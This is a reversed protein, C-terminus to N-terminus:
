LSDAIYHLANVVGIGGIIDHANGSYQSNVLDIKKSHRKDLVSDDFILLHADKPNIHKKTEHWIESPKYHKSNLWRSISDHAIYKPSVESLAKGSYRLSTAILFSKYLSETCKFSPM